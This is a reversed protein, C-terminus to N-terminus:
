DEAGTPAVDGNAAARLSDSPLFVVAQRAPVVVKSGTHLNRAPRPGRERVELKGLGLLFVEQKHNVADTVVDRITDVLKRVTVATEGSKEAVAKILEAKKM